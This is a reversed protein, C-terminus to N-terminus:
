PVDAAWRGVEGATEADYLIVQLSSIGEPADEPLSLTYVDSVREGPLWATTPAVRRLPFEDLTAPTGDDKLLPDGDADVLRLSVKLPRPAAVSPRWYLALRLAPGGAWDLRELMYGELLMRGEDMALGLSIPPEEVQAEGRPWVRVLPGEGSFSYTEAIGELERTIYTPLGEAVAAAIADRRAQPDDVALATANAGLGEAAQMYKLATVEGELGIVVSGPPYAVKAMDVSYDHAAWDNSRDVAEGRGPGLATLLVLVSAAVAPWAAGASGPRRVHAHASSSGEGLTLDAGGPAASARRRAEGQVLAEVWGVLWAAGGGSLLALCLFVPLLFVEQDGVQYLLAFVLNTVLVLLVMVWGKRVRWDVLWFLGVLALVAGVFGVQALLLEIWEQASREVSLASPTFFGGYGRALVHDWFGDWTNAYSGHLDAAGAAARLPLYLYLLLPLLLAGIWLLWVKRPRWLGEVSWLLYVLVGPGALVITRHHALGLGVLLALLAVQADFRRGKHRPADLAVLLVLSLLLNHLGYVEAVTAQAWWVPGLGFTLAAVLGGALTAAPGAAFSAAPNGVARRLGGPQTGELLRRALVFVLAVAGAAALASFLNVRWAWNGFPLLRSWVGGLLTYLPYGTPHAIGFTPLVLQFELSDDFLAV